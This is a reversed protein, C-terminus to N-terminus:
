SQGHDKGGCSCTPKTGLMKYNSRDCKAGLTTAHDHMAQILQVDAASHRAGAATKIGAAAVWAQKVAKKDGFSVVGDKDVTYDISWVNDGKRVIVYNDFVQLPYAMPVYPAPPDNFEKYVAENVRQLRDDLSQGELTTFTLCEPLEEKEPELELASECVRMAARHTGCGMEVSCAGRGGPLFALHDGFTELWSAKYPKEKWKGEKGDTVVFAGVSVEENSGKLLRAYMDPHLQKVKATEVWAEQLLKTGEVRSNRIKGIGHSALVDSTNASCQKGNKVPHGIVIPKDNWSEAAKKLTALSVFEPHESNVAHIVGEMLAVVPFVLYEKKDLIETRMTGTANLLHLHHLQVSGDENRRFMGHINKTVNEPKNENVKSRVTTPRGPKSLNHLDSEHYSASSGDSLQVTHFSGSSSRIVGKLGEGGVAARGMNGRVMVRDGPAHGGKPVSNGGKWQNGHFEHGPLDGLAIFEAASRSEMGEFIPNGAKQMSATCIASAGAEDHGKAMVKDVCSRWKDTHHPRNGPM